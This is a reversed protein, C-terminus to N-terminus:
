VKIMEVKGGAVIEVLVAFHHGAIPFGLNAPVIGQKETCHAHGAAHRVMNRQPATQQFKAAFKVLVNVQAGACQHWAHCRRQRVAFRALNIKVYHTFICLAFVAAHAPTHVAARCAFDDYLVGNHGAHTHVPHQFKRKLQRCFAGILVQGARRFAIADANGHRIPVLAHCFHCLMEGAHAYVLIVYVNQAGM